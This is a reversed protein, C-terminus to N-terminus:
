YYYNDKVLSCYLNSVKFIVDHISDDTSAEKLLLNFDQNISTKKRAPLCICDAKQHVQTIAFNNGKPDCFTKLGSYINPIKKVKLPELM